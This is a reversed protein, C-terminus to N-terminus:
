RGADLTDLEVRIREMEENDHRANHVAEVAVGYEGRAEATKGERLAELGLNGWSRLEAELKARQGSTDQSTTTSTSSANSGGCGIILAASM